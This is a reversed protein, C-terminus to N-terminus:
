RAQPNHLRQSERACRLLRRRLEEIGQGDTASCWVPEIGLPKFRQTAGARESRRLKDSKTAAVLLALGRRRVAAALSLEEREPGRRAGILILVAVLNRRRELYESMLAGIRAADAHSMKAYGFGPLDVLALDEGVAFFNLARTRGPTKSTRALGEVGVLANLLSSKGVNSRGAIAVEIRDWRPCEALAAASAAFQADLKL